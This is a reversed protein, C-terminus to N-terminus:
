VIINIHYYIFIFIFILSIFLIIIYILILIYLIFHIIFILINSSIFLYFFPLLFYFSVLLSTFIRSTFLLYSSSIWRLLIFLQILYKLFYSISIILPNTVIILIYIYIIVIFILILV